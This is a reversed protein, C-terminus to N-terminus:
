YVLQRWITFTPKVGRPLRALDMTTLVRRSVEGNAYAAVIELTYIGSEAFSMQASIRAYLDDLGDRIPIGLEYWERRATLVKELEEMDLGVTSQIMEPSSSFFSPKGPFSAGQPPIVRLLDEPVPRGVMAQQLAPALYDVNPLWYAEEAFLLPANRPFGRLGRAEYDAKEMGHLRVLDDADVYDDIADIFYEAASAEEDEAPATLGLDRRLREGPQRGAINWGRNADLIRFQIQVDQGLPLTYPKGDAAWINVQVEDAETLMPQGLNRNRPRAARDSIIMWQLYARSSEAAYRGKQRLVDVKSTVRSTSAAVICMTAVFTFLATMGLVVILAIGDERRRGSRKM